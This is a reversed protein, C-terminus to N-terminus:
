PIVDEVCITTPYALRPATYIVPERTADIVFLISFIAMEWIQNLINLRKGRKTSLNINKYHRINFQLDMLFWYSGTHMKIM